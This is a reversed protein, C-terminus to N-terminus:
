NDSADHLVTQGEKITNKMDEILSDDSGDGNEKSKNDDVVENNSAAMNRLKAMKMNKKKKLKKNSFDMWPDKNAGSKFRDAFTDKSDIAHKSTKTKSTGAAFTLPECDMSSPEALASSAAVVSSAAVLSSPAVLFDKLPAAPVPTAAIRGSAVEVPRPSAVVLASSVPSSAVSAAAVNASRLVPHLLSSCNSSLLSVGILFYFWINVNFDVRCTYLFLVVPCTLDTIV